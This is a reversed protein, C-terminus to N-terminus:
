GVSIEFDRGWGDYDELDLVIRLPNQYFFNAYRSFKSSLRILLETVDPPAGRKM